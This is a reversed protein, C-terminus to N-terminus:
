IPQATESPWPLPPAASALQAAIADERMTKEEPTWAALVWAAVQEQTLDAYPTFAGGSYTLDTTGGFAASREGETGVYAWHVRVVVNQQGEVSATEMQTVNLKYNM